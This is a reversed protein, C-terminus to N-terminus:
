CLVGQQMYGQIDRMSYIYLHGEKKCNGNIASHLGSVAWADLCHTYERDDVLVTNHAAASKLRRREERERLYLSGSSWFTRGM